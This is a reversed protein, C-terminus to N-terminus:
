DREGDEDMRYAPCGCCNSLGCESCFSAHDKCNACIDSDPTGDEDCAHELEAPEPKNERAKYAFPNAKDYFELEESIAAEETMIKCNKRVRKENVYIWDRGEKLDGDDPLYNEERGSFPDLYKMEFLDNRLEDLSEFLVFDGFGPNITAMRKKVMKLGEGRRRRESKEQDTPKKM